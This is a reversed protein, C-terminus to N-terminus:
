EPLSPLPEVDLWAVGPLTPPGGYFTPDAPHVQPRSRRDETAEPNAKTAAARTSQKGGRSSGVTRDSSQMASRTREERTRSDPDCPMSLKAPEPLQASLSPTTTPRSIVPPARRRTRPSPESLSSMAGM